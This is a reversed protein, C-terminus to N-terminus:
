QMPRVSRRAVILSIGAFLVLGVMWSISPSAFPTDSHSLMKHAWGLPNFKAAWQVWVPSVSLPLFIGSLFLMPLQVFNLVPIIADESQGIFTLAFSLSSFALGILTIVVFIVAFFDFTLPPRWGMVCATAMVLMVQWWLSAILAVSYGLIIATRSVPTVLLRNIFGSRMRDLLGLGCWSSSFFCSMVVLGPVFFDLYTREGLFPRTVQDTYLQSYLVLWMIPEIVEMAVWVKVRLQQRIRDQAIALVDRIFQKM